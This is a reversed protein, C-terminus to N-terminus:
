LFKTRFASVTLIPIGLSVAKTAKGTTPEAEGDPYVLALTKKTVSAGIEFGKSLLTAILDADREGTMVVSGATGLTAATKVPVAPFNDHRWKVYDPLAAVIQQITDPSIGSIAGLSAWESIPGRVLMAALKTRGVTRPMTSSAVLLDLETWSAQGARLGEFLKSAMTKKVGPVKLFDEPKADYLARLTTFGADFLKTVMGAGVHEVRLEALAHVIKSQDLEGSNAGVPLIHVVGSPPPGGETAASVWQYRPPMSPAVSTLVAAVKPITSGARTIEIVAGPGIGNDYIWRGHIGTVATNTAGGVVVPDYLIRPILYGTHSVNWEVERVTTQKKELEGRTKWAIRDTPNTLGNHAKARAVEPAVVIGDLQYQSAKIAADFITSLNTETMEAAKVLTARATEFGAAKLATNSQKPSMTAPEVLEYAVFYVEGFLKPDVEQRNLIGAVINRALKGEPVAHSDTRMILEGRIATASASATPFGKFYPAFQSIDRGKVGDGRTYLKRTEPIWLASCGDLKASVLYSAAPNKSLWKTLTGPKAKNLSPLPIPLTVEDGTVPAGIKTLFPHEPDLEELKDRLADYEDDTMIEDLGNRYAHNAEELRKVISAVETKSPMSGRYLAM